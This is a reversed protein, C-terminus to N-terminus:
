VERKGVPAKIESRRTKNKGQKNIAPLPSLNINLKYTASYSSNFQSGISLVSSDMLYPITWHFLQSPCPILSPSNRVQIRLLLGTFILTKRLETHQEVFNNFSFLANHSARCKYSTPCFCPHGRLSTFSARLPSLRTPGLWWDTPDRHVRFLTLTSTLEQVGPQHQLVPSNTHSMGCM